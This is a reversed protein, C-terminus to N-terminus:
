RVHAWTERRVAQGITQHTVGFIEALRAQTYRRDRYAWRIWCVDDETLKAREHESGRPRRKPHTRSGNNDGRAAREPHKRLGNLDGSRDLAVHEKRTMPLLHSPNCCARNSCAHHLEKGTPISGLVLEYAVRHAVFDTLKKKRCGLGQIARVRVVVTRGDMGLM